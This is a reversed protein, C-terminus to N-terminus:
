FYGASADLKITAPTAGRYIEVGSQDAIAIRVATPNSSIGSSARATV